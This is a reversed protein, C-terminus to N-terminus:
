RVARSSPLKSSSKCNMWIGRGASPTSRALPPYRSHNFSIPRCVQLVAVHTIAPREAGRTVTDHYVAEKTPLRDAGFWEVEGGAVSNGQAEKQIPNQTPRSLSIITLSEKCDKCNSTTAKSNKM